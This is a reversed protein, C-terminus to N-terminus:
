GTTSLFTLAPYTSSRSWRSTPSESSQPVANVLDEGLISGAKYNSLDTAFSGTGAITGGTSLVWVLPLDKSAAGQAFAPAAVLYVSILSVVVFLLYSSMQKARRM